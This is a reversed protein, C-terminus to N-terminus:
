GVHRDYIDQYQYDGRRALADILALADRRSRADTAAREIIERRVDSVYPWPSDSEREHLLRYLQIARVPDRDVEVRVYREVADRGIGHHPSRAIHPVMGELLPWLDAITEREAAIPLLNAYWDMEPDYDVPHEAVISERVRWAWLARIKPWNRARDSVTDECAHWALWALSGRAEAPAQRLFLAILSRHMDPDPAEDDSHLYLALVHGALKQEPELHTRTVHGRALNLIAREYKPRLLPLTPAYPDNFIVYSDWAAVYFQTAQEDEESPLIDEIHEEIWGRDLWYLPTLYRGYVSHVAQSPDEHRDLKRTLTERVVRELRQPGPGRVEEVAARNVEAAQSAYLVLASLASPRVHNLAVTAPDGHGFWGEPPTDGRLDPDPDDVLPLLLDRATPLYAVPMARTPEELGVTLLRVISLRVAVWDANAGRTTDRRVTEDAVLRECFALGVDWALSGTKAGQIIEELIAYAYEPRHRAIPWLHQGYRELDAAVLHAIARGLGVYSVPRLDFSQTPTPQWRHVFEVLEDPSLAALEEDTLPSIDQMWGGVARHILEPRDPQGVGAVLTELVRASQGTLHEHIMWLRDRMWRNAHQRAYADPDEGYAHQAWEALRTTADTPPGDLIAVIVRRQDAPSLHPYGHKLLLLVEHRADVDDLSEGDTLVSAVLASYATPARGLLHLALRRLIAYDARLYREVVTEAGAADRAVWEELSQRLARLAMDRYTEHQEHETDEVASRWWSSSAPSSSHEALGEATTLADEWLAVVQRIDRERLVQLGDALSPIDGLLRHSSAVREIPAMVDDRGRAGLTRVPTTLARFIAFAAPLRDDQALRHLLGWCEGAIADAIAPDGLWAVIRPLVEEVQHSPLQRLARVARALYAPAGEVTQVHLLVIDAADHAVTILYELVDWYPYARTGDAELPTPPTEFFGKSWLVRAWGASPGSRFFYHRLDERSRLVKMIVDVVTPSADPHDAHVYRDLVAVQTYFPVNSPLM